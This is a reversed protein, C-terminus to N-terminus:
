IKWFAFDIDMGSTIWLGTRDKNVTERMPATGWWWVFKLGQFSSNLGSFDLALVGM